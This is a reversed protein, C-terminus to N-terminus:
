KHTSQFINITFNQPLWLVTVVSLRIDCCQKSETTVSTSKTTVFLAILRNSTVFLIYRCVNKHRSMIDLSIVSSPLSIIEKHRLWISALIHDQLFTNITVNIEWIAVYTCKFRVNKHRSWTPELNQDPLFTNTM